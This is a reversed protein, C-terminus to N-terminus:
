VFIAKRPQADQETRTLMMQKLDRNEQRLRELEQESDKRVAKIVAEWAMLQYQEQIPQQGTTEHWDFGRLTSWYLEKAQNADM